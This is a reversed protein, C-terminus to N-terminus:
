RWNLERWNELGSYAVHDFGGPTGDSAVNVAVHSVVWQRQYSAQGQGCCTTARRM